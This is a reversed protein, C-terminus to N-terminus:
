AIIDCASSCKKGNLDLNEEDSTDMENHLNEKVDEKRKKKPQYESFIL